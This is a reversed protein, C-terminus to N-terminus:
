KFAAEIAEKYKDFIVEKAKDKTAWRYEDHEESLTPEGGEFDATVKYFILVLSVNDKIDKHVRTAFLIEHTEITTINSLEEHLERSLTEEITENGDMRGGPVEWFGDKYGHTNHVILVKDDRKIIAKIGVNFLKESM